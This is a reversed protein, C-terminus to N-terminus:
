NLVFWSVWTPSSVTRNLYIRVKGKIPYNPRVTTVFVGARYSMLNAFCLPTGELGTWPADPGGSLDVDVHRTGALVSARGSRNFRVKGSVVLAFRNDDASLRLVNPLGSMPEAEIVTELSSTNVAGLVVDGDTGARVPAARHLASVVTAAAAGAAATLLARRSRPVKTDLSM